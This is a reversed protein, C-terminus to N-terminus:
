RTSDPGPDPEAPPPSEALREAENAIEALNLNLETERGNRIVTVRAQSAGNLSNFVDNLRGQDDLRLGNIATVIDNPRFGLRNFAQANSGPNVRVGTLHGDQLVTQRTMVQNIIDPNDRVIQQMRDLSVGPSPLPPANGSVQQAGERPPVLLAEISGGRDLLVRDVYVAYLRAGGPVDDGVQYVKVDNTNPGMAALGRKEDNAAFVLVLKLNMNTVPADTGTAIPSQGFLNARLISPVDVVKRTATPPASDGTRAVTTPPGALDAVLLAARVGLLVILLGLIWRPLQALLQNALEGSASSAQAV